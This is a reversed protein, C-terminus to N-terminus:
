HEVINVAHPGASGQNELIEVANDAMLSERSVQAGEGSASLMVSTSCLHVAAPYPAPAADCAWQVRAKAATLAFSLAKNCFRM